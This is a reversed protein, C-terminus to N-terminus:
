LATTQPWPCQGSHPKMRAKYSELFAVKTSHKEGGLYYAVNVLLVAGPARRNAKHPLDSRALAPLAGYLNTHDVEWWPLFTRAMEFGWRSVVSRDRIFARGRNMNSSQMKRHIPRSRARGIRKSWILNITTSTQYAGRCLRPREVEPSECQKLTCIDGHAEKVEYLSAGLKLKSPDQQEDGM